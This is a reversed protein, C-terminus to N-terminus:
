WQFGAGPEAGASDDDELPPEMCEALAPAARRNAPPTWVIRSEGTQANERSRAADSTARNAADQRERDERARQESFARRQLSVLNNHMQVAEPAESDDEYELLPDNAEEAPVPRLYPSVVSDEALAAPRQLYWSSSSSYPAAPFPLQLYSTSSGDQAAHPSMQLHPNAFNNHAAPPPPGPMPVFPGSSAPNRSVGSDTTTDTAAHSQSLSGFLSYPYEVDDDTASSEFGSGRETFYPRHGEDDPIDYDEQMLQSVVEALATWDEPRRRDPFRGTEAEYGYRRAIDRLDARRALTDPALPQDVISRDSVRIHRRRTIGRLLWSGLHEIPESVMVNIRNPDLFRSLEQFAPTLYLNRLEEDDLSWVDIYITTNINRGEGLHRVATALQQRHLRNVHWYWVFNRLFERGLPGIEELFRGAIFPVPRFDWYENERLVVFTNDGFFVESALRDWGSCADGIALIESLPPLFYGYHYANHYYLNGRHSEDADRMWSPAPLFLRLSATSSTEQACIHIPDPYKLLYRLIILIIETPLNPLQPTGGPGPALQSSYWRGPSQVRNNSGRGYTYYRRFIQNEQGPRLYVVRRRFQRAYLDGRGRTGPDVPVFPGDYTYALRSLYQRVTEPFIQRGFLGLGPPAYRHNQFWPFNNELWAVIEEDDATRDQQGLLALTILEQITLQPRLNQHWVDFIQRWLRWQTQQQQERFQQQAPPATGPARLGPFHRNIHDIRRQEVPRAVERRDNVVNARPQGTTGVGQGRDNIIAEIDEQSFNPEGHIREM